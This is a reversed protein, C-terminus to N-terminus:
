VAEPQAIAEAYPIVQSREIYPALLERLAQEGEKTLDLRYFDYQISFTVPGGKGAPIDKGTIDDTLVIRASM